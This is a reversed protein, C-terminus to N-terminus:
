LELIRVEAWESGITARIWDQVAPQDVRYMFDVGRCWENLGFSNVAVITNTAEYLLPAGSDGGCTGGRGKGPNATLQINFGSTLHSKLNVLQETAMLRKRFSITKVPNSLTLGYGSATFTIEQQGRRTAFRDLSGVKAIAAFNTGVIGAQDTQTISEDLVILGVDKTNPFGNFNDFGYNYLNHSGRRQDGPLREAGADRHGPRIRRRRGALVLAEGLSRREGCRHLPGCHARRPGHDALGLLSPHVGMRTTSGSLAVYTHVHDDQYNGTIAGAPTTGIALLTLVITSVGIIRRM